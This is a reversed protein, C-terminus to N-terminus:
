TAEGVMALMTLTARDALDRAVSEEVPMSENDEREPQNDAFQTLADALVRLEDYTFGSM